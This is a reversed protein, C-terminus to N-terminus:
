HLPASKENEGFPDDPWWEATIIFCLFFSDDQKEVFPALILAEGPSISCRATIIRQSERPSQVVVNMGPLKIEDVGTIGSVTLRCQLDLTDSDIVTPRASITTGEDLVAIEPQYAKALEGKVTHVGVVFPSHFTDRLSGEQGNFLTFKPSNLLNVRPHSQLRDILSTVREQKLVTTLYPAYNRSTSDVASTVSRASTLEADRAWEPIRSSNAPTFKVAEDWDLDGLLELNPICVVRPEITIQWSGSRAFGALKGAFQEHERQTMRITVNGRDSDDEVIEAQAAFPPNLHALLWKRADANSNMAAIKELAPQLDYNRTEIPSDPAFPVEYTGWQAPALSRQQSMWESMTIASEPPTRSADAYTALDTLGTVSVVVLMAGALARPMLRDHADSSFAAIRKKLEHAPRSFWLGVLGLSAPHRSSAFQLLLEMYDRREPVSISRRVVEDCAMERYKVIQRITIWALPNFWHAAQVVSLLWSFYIDRRRVHMVEHLLIMRFQNARLQLRTEEPLCITPTFVGFVAPAPLGPLFKVPPCRRVGLQQCVRELLQVIAPDETSTVTKLLSAFRTTAVIARGLLAVAGVFWVLILSNGLLTEWDFPSPTQEAASTSTTATWSRASETIADHHTSDGNATFRPAGSGTVQAPHLQDLEDSRSTIGVLQWVSQLSLPSEPAVPMALRLVVVSWLLCRTRAAMWRGIALDVAFVLMVLPAAAVAAAVVFSCPVAIGAVFSQVLESM